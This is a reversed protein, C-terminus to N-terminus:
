KVPGAALYKAKYAKRVSKLHRTYSALEPKRNNQINLPYHTAGLLERSEAAIADAVTPFSMWEIELGDMFSDIEPAGALYDFGNLALLTFRFTSLFGSRLASMGLKQAAHWEIREALSTAMGHYLCLKGSQSIRLNLAALSCLEAIRFRQVSEPPFYWWYVGPNAPVTAWRRARLDSLLQVLEGHGTRLKRALRL